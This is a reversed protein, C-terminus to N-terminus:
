SSTANWAEADWFAMAPLERQEALHHRIFGLLLRRHAAAHRDDLPPDPLRGVVLAALAAADTARLAATRVGRRHAPCLAGGQAASFALAGSVAAGCAVCRELTPAFGLAIVLAWVTSLAVTGLLTAPAAALADLGASATDFVEPHVDPPACRLALEALASAAAFRGVDGGLAGHADTMEFDTLPHLERQPKVALTAVGAAFLDLRPGTRAKPRRAGRAIASQLGIERTLLRLIKSTEGYPMVHLILAPTTVAAM